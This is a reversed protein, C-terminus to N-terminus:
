GSVWPYRPRCGTAVEVLEEISTIDMRQM